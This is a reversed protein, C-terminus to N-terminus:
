IYWMNRPVFVIYLSGGRNLGPISPAPYAWFPNGGIPGFVEDCFTFHCWRLAPACFESPNAHQNSSTGSLFYANGTEMIQLRTSTGEMGRSLPNTALPNSDWSLLSCGMCGQTKALVHVRDHLLHDSFNSKVDSGGHIRLCSRRELINSFLSYPSLLGHRDHEAQTTHQDQQGAHQGEATLDGQLSNTACLWGM